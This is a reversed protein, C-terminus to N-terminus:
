DELIEVPKPLTVLFVCGGESSVAHTGDPPTYLYDGTKLRDPGVRLDGDLIFVEEGAPHNHAPFRAGAALRVLSTSEGTEANRRLLKFSVGPIKLAKWGDDGGRVVTASVRPESM